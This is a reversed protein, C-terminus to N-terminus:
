IKSRPALCLLVSPRLLARARRRLDPGSGLGELESCISLTSRDEEGKRHRRSRSLQREGGGVGAGGGEVGRLFLTGGSAMVTDTDWGCCGISLTWQPGKVAM